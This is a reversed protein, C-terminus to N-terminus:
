PAVRALGREVEEDKSERELIAALRSGRMGGIDLGVCQAGVGVAASLIGGGGALEGEVGPM